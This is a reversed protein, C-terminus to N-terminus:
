AADLLREAARLRASRSRPNRLIEEQDPELPKNTLIRLRATKGCICVPTRPPCVCTAAEHRFLRKVIRDELSHYAIVVLRGGPALLDVGATLTQELVELERNVAIRFAQFVRALSKHLHRADAGREIAAALDRTTEMAGRRRAEDIAHAIRRSRPEEGYEFMIRALEDISSMAILQRATPDERTNMRMDLPGDQSFSFGREAADVHRSSIGLDLLLGDIAGVGHTNLHQQLHITRTHIFTIREDHKLRTYSHELAEVDQDCGFLRGGRDLRALIAASHGGGGLTGDVYIGDSRTVLLDVATALLVPVHYQAEGETLIM